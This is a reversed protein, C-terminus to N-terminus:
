PMQDSKFADIPIVKKAGYATSLNRFYENFWASRNNLNLFYVPIGGKVYYDVLDSTVAPQYEVVLVRVRKSTKAKLFLTAYPQEDVFVASDDAVADALAAFVQVGVERKTNVISWEGYSHALSVALCLALLLGALSRLRGFRLYCWSAALLSISLMAPVSQVLPDLSFILLGDRLYVAAVLLFVAGFLAWEVRTIGQFIREAVLMSLVVLFPASEMFYRMSYTEDAGGYSFAAYYAIILFSAFFLLMLVPKRNDQRLYFVSLASLILFPSSQLLAKKYVVWMGSPHYSLDFVSALFSQVYNMLADSYFALGFLGIICAVIALAPIGVRKTAYLWYCALAMAAAGLYAPKAIMLFNGYGTEFADGFCILNIWLIAIVPILLGTAFMSAGARDRRVILLSLMAASFIGDTFRVGLALGGVLGSIFNEFGGAKGRLVNRIVLYVSLVVLMVSLLHPLVYNTFPLSPTMLSYVIAAAESLWEDLFLRALLYVLIILVSYSLVNLLVLGRLGWMRYFPLSIVPYLPSPVGFLRYVQGDSVLHTSPLVLQWSQVEDLGNWIEFGGTEAFTDAMLTYAVEDSVTPAAVSYTLALSLGLVLSYLVIFLSSKVDM